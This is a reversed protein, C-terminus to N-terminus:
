YNPCEDFDISFVQEVFNILPQATDYCIEEPGMTIKNLGIKKDRTLNERGFDYLYRNMGNNLLFGLLYCLSIM